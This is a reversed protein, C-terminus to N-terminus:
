PAATADNPPNAKAMPMVTSFKGSELGCHFRTGKREDLIRWPRDEGILYTSFLDQLNVPLLFGHYQEPCSFMPHPFRDSEAVSRDNHVPDARRRLGELWSLYIPSVIAYTLDKAVM